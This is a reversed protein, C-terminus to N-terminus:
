RNVRVNSPRMVSQIEYIDADDTGGGAVVVTKPCPLKNAAMLKMAEEPTINNKRLCDRSVVFTVNGADMKINDSKSKVRSLPEDFDDSGGSVFIQVCCGCTGDAIRKLAEEYTVGAKKLCAKDLIFTGHVEPAKKQAEAFLALEPYNEESVAVKKVSGGGSACAGIVLTLVVLFSLKMLAKM